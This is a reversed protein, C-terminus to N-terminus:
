NNRKGTNKLLLLGPGQSWDKFSKIMAPAKSFNGLVIDIRGDGDWDGADMTLWRGTISEPLALPFFKGDRNDLYVFSEQPQHAYDAFFSIAALDIDGDNDYDRALAKYCGNIPFFFDQEFGDKGDNLFVYVGHYPKLVPSYDANDGCTYIIDDRGDKNFDVLEFFTSGYSPPLRLVQRQEFQGNGKNTYLFVGEDGQSFLVWLDTLGDNNVDRVYVQMAGPLPRLVHRTFNNNGKNQYWSLSGTMFGFECAIYDEQSDGDLDAVTVHAPRELNRIFATTDMKWKGEQIAVSKLSGFKGNNPNMQGIDCVVMRNKQFDIHVVPGGAIVSDYPKLQKDLKYIGGTAYDAFVLGTTDIKVFCTSPPALTFPPKQVEFLPLGMKIQRERVQDPLVDPSTATYYDIIYQWESTTLLPQKPYFNSDLNRDNKGSPYQRYRHRFIGLMPGMNPMVGEDWSKADLLSPEPLLHCNQCYKVALEEGKQINIAPVESFSQNRNYSKCFSLLFLTSIIFGTTIKKLMQSLLTSIHLYAFTCISLRTQSKIQVNAYKCM